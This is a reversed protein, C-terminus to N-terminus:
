RMKELEDNFLTGLVEERTILNYIRGDLGRIEKFVAIAM